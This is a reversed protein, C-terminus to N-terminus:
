WTALTLFFMYFVTWGSFFIILLSCQSVYPRIVKALMNIAVTVVAFRLLRASISLLIFTLLSLEASPAQIAFIKYPVGTFAGTFMAWGLHQKLDLGAQQIMENSIAPVKNVIVMASSFDIESWYYMIIGGLLAGLVAWLCAILGKKLSQLGCYSTWVDPVVFFITSEAFSWLSAIINIKM